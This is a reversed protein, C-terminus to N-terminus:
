IIGEPRRVSFNAPRPVIGGPPKETDDQQRAM